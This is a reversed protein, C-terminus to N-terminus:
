RVCSYPSRNVQRSRMPPIFADKQARLTKLEQEVRDVQRKMDVLDSAAQFVRELIELNERTPMVLKQSSTGMQALLETIRIAATMKPLPIKSTRLFVPQHASHKAALHSSNPNSPDLPVRYVHRALDKRILWARMSKPM